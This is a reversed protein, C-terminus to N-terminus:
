ILIVMGYNGCIKLNLEQEKIEKLLNEYITNDNIDCFFTQYLYLRMQFLYEQILNYNESEIVLKIDTPKYSPKFTRCKKKKIKRKKKIKINILVLEEFVNVMLISM